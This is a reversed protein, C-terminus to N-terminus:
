HGNIMVHTCKAVGYDNASNCIPPKPAAPNAAMVMAAVSAQEWCPSPSEAIAQIIAVHKRARLDSVVRDGMFLPWDDTHAVIYIGLEPKPKAAATGLLAVLSLLLGTLRPRYSM